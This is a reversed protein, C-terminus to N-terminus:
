FRWGRDEVKATAGTVHRIKERRAPRVGPDDPEVIRGFHEGFSAVGMRILLPDFTINGVPLRIFWEIQNERVGHQMPHRPM